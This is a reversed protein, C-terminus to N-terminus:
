WNPSITIYHCSVNLPVNYFNGGFGATSYGCGGAEYTYFFYGPSWIQIDYNGEPIYGLNGSSYASAYFSFFESTSTNTLMIYQEEGTYNVYDLSFTPNSCEGHTNAYNQGNADVDNQALQDAAEKSITSSYTNAAVSYTVTTPIGSGCNNRTFDGSKPGNYYIDLCNEPQGAYNYCIKKLINKDEDRILRLRHLPDYEYFVSKGNPDTESTLGVLPEYTYTTMMADSPYIRVEDIADGESLTTPGTYDKTINKWNGSQLYHYNIKYNRSNPLAFSVSYDGNYYKKGAYPNSLANGSEEFGEYLFEKIGNTIQQPTSGQYSLNASVGVYDAAWLYVSLTYIGPPM